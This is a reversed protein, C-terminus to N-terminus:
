TDLMASLYASVEPITGCILDAVQFVAERLESERAEDASLLTGLYDESAWPSLASDVFVMENQTKTAWVQLTFAIPDPEWWMAITLVALPEGNCTHLGALCLGIGDGDHLVPGRVVDHAAGCHACQEELKQYEISLTM